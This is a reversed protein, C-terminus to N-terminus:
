CNDNPATVALYAKRLNSKAEEHNMKVGKESSYEVRYIYGSAIKLYNKREADKRTYKKRFFDKGSKSLQFYALNWSSKM